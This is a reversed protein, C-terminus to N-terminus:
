NLPLCAAPGPVVDRVRQQELLQGRRDHGLRPGGRVGAAPGSRPQGRERDGRQSQDPQRRLGAPHRAARLDRAAHQTGLCFNAVAIGFSDNGTVQQAPGPEHRGGAAPHGNGAARRLRRRGPRPLHEAQQQRPRQQPRDRQGLEVQRGPVAAHVVPDRRHQRNGRQPRRPRATSNEIEYGSVNDTAVNHDMRSTTRSGSTSGPTTQARRSRTTSAATSRTRRSSRTSSTTRDGAGRTVRFGDVCYLFM